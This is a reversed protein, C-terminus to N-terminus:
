TAAGPMSVHQRQKEESMVSSSQEPMTQNITSQRSRLVANSTRTSKVNATSVSSEAGRLVPVVDRAPPPILLRSLLEREALLCSSAIALTVGGAFEFLILRGISSSVAEVFLCGVTVRFVGSAVGIPLGSAAIVLREWVPKNSLWVAVAMSLALAALLLRLGGSAQVLDVLSGQIQLLGDDLRFFYGLTELLYVSGAITIKSIPGATVTALLKPITVLSGPFLHGPWAFIVGAIACLSATSKGLRSRIGPPTRM